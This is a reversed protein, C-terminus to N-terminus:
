AVLTETDLLQSGRRLELDYYGIKINEEEKLRPMEKDAVARDEETIQLETGTRELELIKHHNQRILLYLPVKYKSRDVIKNGDFLLIDFEAGRLSDNSKLAAFSSSLLQMDRENITLSKDARRVHAMDVNTKFSNPNQIVLTMQEKSVSRVANAYHLACRQTVGNEDTFEVVLFDPRNDLGSNPPVSKLLFIKPAISVVIGTMGPRFILYNDKNLGYNSGYAEVAFKCTVTDGINFKAM